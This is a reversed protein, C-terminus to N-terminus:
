LIGLFIYIRHVNYIHEGSKKIELNKVSIVEPNPVKKVNNYICKYTKGKNFTVLGRLM